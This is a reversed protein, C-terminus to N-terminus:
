IKDTLLPRFKERADKIMDPLTSGRSHYYKDSTLDLVTRIVGSFAWGPIFVDDGKEFEYREMDDLMPLCRKIASVLGMFDYDCFRIEGVLNPVDEEDLSRSKFYHEHIAILSDSSLEVSSDFHSESRSIEYQFKEKENKISNFQEDALEILASLRNLKRKFQPEVDSDNKYLLKHSIASWSHMLMTRIQIEAKLGSLGRASPHNLWSDKLKVIYHFSSYGFQDHNLMEQKNEESLIDFEIKLIECIRVIDEQYYCIVRIGCIDEIQDFPNSYGKRSVKNAFSTEDKLRSEVAFTPIDNEIMMQELVSRINDKLREYKPRLERFQSNLEPM